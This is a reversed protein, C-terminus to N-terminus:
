DTISASSIKNQLFNIILVTINDVSGRYYAQLTLSKAGFDTEDIREKIFKVAEENSFTDWLGDSALVLFMPKHDDLNFTLIDPDAIVFNKDKLPYDGM